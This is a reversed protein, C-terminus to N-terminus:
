YKLVVGMSTEAVSKAVRSLAMRVHAGVCRPVWSYGFYPWGLLDGCGGLRLRAQPIPILVSTGGPHDARLRGAM